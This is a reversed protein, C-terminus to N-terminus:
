LDERRIEAGLRKLKGAFDVYGRDLDGLGYVTSQGEACLGAIVLAATARLDTGRVSAGSLHSVGNIRANSGKVKIEAGMKNLEDVHLYRNEFVTETVQSKGKCTALLAMMQAQLDTPFGPYPATMVEAGNLDGGGLVRLHTEGIEIQAGMAKLKSIPAMM